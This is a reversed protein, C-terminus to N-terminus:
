GEGPHRGALFTCIGDPIYVNRRSMVPEHVRDIAKDFPCDLIPLAEPGRPQGLDREEALLHTGARLIAFLKAPFALPAM